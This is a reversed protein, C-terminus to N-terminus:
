PLGQMCPLYLEQTWIIERSLIPTFPGYTVPRLVVFITGSRQWSIITNIFSTVAYFIQTAFQVSGRDSNVHAM